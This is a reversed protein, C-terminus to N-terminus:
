EWGGGELAPPVTADGLEGGGGGIRDGAGEWVAGEDGGGKTTLVHEIGLEVRDVAPSGEGGGGARAVGLFRDGEWGYM